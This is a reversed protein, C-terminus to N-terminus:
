NVCDLCNGGPGDLGFVKENTSGEWSVRFEAFNVAVNFMEEM